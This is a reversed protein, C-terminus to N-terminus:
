RVVAVVLLLVVVALLPTVAVAHAALVAARPQVAAPVTGVVDELRHM